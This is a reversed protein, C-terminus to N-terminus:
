AYHGSFASKTNCSAEYTFGKNVVCPRIQSQATDLFNVRVCVLYQTNPSLGNVSYSTQYKNPIEVRTVHSIKGLKQYELSYDAVDDVNLFVWALEIGDTTKTIRTFRFNQDTEESGSHQQQQQQSFQQSPLRLYIEPEYSPDCRLDERPVLYLDRKNLNKPTQCVANMMFVFYPDKASETTIWDHLWNLRCDCHIPNSSLYLMQLQTFNQFVCHSVTQISNHQINLSVLRNELGHFMDQTITSIGNRELMIYRLELNHVFQFSPIFTIGTNGLELVNLKQLKAVSQWLDHEVVITDTLFLKRLTGELGSISNTTLVFRQDNKLNEGRLDMEQLKPTHRFAGPSITSLLNYSLDLIKLSNLGLFNTDNIYTIENTDLNVYTVSNMNFFLGDPIRKLKNHGLNLQELRPWNVSALPGFKEDDLDNLHLGLYELTNHVNTFCNLEFYNIRNHSLDLERLNRLTAFAEYPIQNIELHVATLHELSTLPKLGEKPFVRLPLFMLELRKLKPLRNKFADATIYTIDMYKFKLTELNSLRDFQASDRNLTGQRFRKLSLSKLNTLRSLANYPPSMSIAMPYGAGQLSIEELSNEVGVFASDSVQLLNNTDLDIVKVRLGEFARAQIYTINNCRENCPTRTVLPDYSNSFTLEHFLENSPKFKPISRLARDRCNIIRGKGPPGKECRCQTTPCEQGLAASTVM